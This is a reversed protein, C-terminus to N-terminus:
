YTITPEFEAKANHTYVFVQLVKKLITLIQLVKFLIAGM